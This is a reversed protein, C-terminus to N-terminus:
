KSLSFKAHARISAIVGQSFLPRAPLHCFIILLFNQYPFNQCISLFEDINEGTLIKRWVTYTNDIVKWHHRM